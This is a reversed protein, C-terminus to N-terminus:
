HYGGATKRLSTNAQRRSDVCQALDSCKSLDERCPSLDEDSFTLVEGRPRASGPQGCLPRKFILHQMRSGVHFEGPMPWPRPENCGASNNTSFCFAHSFPIVPYMYMNMNYTMLSLHSYAHLETRHVRRGIRRDKAIKFEQNQSAGGPRFFSFLRREDWSIDTTHITRSLNKAIGFLELM